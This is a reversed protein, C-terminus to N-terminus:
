SFSHHAVSIRQREEARIPLLKFLGGPHSSSLRRRLSAKSAALFSVSCNRDGSKGARLM